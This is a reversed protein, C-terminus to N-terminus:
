IRLINAHDDCVTGSINNKVFGLGDQVWELCNGVTKMVKDQKDGPHRSNAFLAQARETGTEGDGLKRDWKELDEPSLDYDKEIKRIAESWIDDVSKVGPPEKSTGKRRFANKSAKDLSKDESSAM